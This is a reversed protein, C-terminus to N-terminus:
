LCVVVAAATLPPDFAGDMLRSCFTGAACACGKKNRRTCLGYSNACVMLCKASRTMTNVSEQMVTDPKALEAADAKDAARNQANVSQQWESPIEGYREEGLGREPYSEDGERNISIPDADVPAEYPEWGNRDDDEAAEAEEAADEAEAESESQMFRPEEVAAVAEPASEAEHSELALPQASTYHIPVEKMDVGMAAVCVGALCVLALLAVARKM